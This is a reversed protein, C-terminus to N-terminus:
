STPQGDICLFNVMISGTLSGTTLFNAAKATLIAYVDKTFPLQIADANGFAGAIVATADAGDIFADAAEAYATVDVGDVYEFGVDLVCSADGLVTPMNIAAGLVISGEPIKGLIIKDDAVIATTDDSLTLVGELFTVTFTHVSLNGFPVGGLPKGFTAGTAIIESM